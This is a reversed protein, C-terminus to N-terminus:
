PATPRTWLLPCPKNKIYRGNVFIDAQKQKFVYSIDGVYGNVNIHSEEYKVEKLKTAVDRGFIAYITSQLDGNGPTQLVTKWKFCTQFVCRPKGASDKEIADTVYSAEVTRKLFKYRAPTNFFLDMVELTTGKACGIESVEILDGGELHVCVGVPAEATKSVLKVRSVSAISPLAEEESAM